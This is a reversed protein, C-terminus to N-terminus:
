HLAAALVQWADQVPPLEPLSFTVHALLMFHSEEEPLAGPL